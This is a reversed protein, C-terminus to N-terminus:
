KRLKDLAMGDGEMTVLLIDVITRSSAKLIIETKNPHIHYIQSINSLECYRKLIGNFVSDKHKGKDLIFVHFVFNSSTFHKILDKVGTKIQDSFVATGMRLFALKKPVQISDDKTLKRIEETPVDQLLELYIKFIKNRKDKGLIYNKFRHLKKPVIDYTHKRESNYLTKLLWRSLRDFNYKIVLVSNEDILEEPINDGYFDLFYNDLVSLIGNNCEQCVDNVTLFNQTYKDYVRAYGTGIRHYKNLFGRSVVHEATFKVNTKECYACQKM